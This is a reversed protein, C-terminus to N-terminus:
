RIPLISGSRVGTRVHWRLSLSATREPADPRSWCTPMWGFCRMTVSRRCYSSGGPWLGDELHPMKYVPLKEQGRGYNPLVRIPKPSKDWLDLATMATRASCDPLTLRGNGTILADYPNSGMDKIRTIEPEQGSMDAIWTEGTDWMTFVFKRGPASSWVSPRRDRRSTPLWNWRIPM